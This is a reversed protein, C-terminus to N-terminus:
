RASSFQVSTILTPRSATCGIGVVWAEDAVAIVYVQEAQYTARDVFTPPVDGTLHLVCEVLAQSPPVQAAPIAAARTSETGPPDLVPSAGSDPPSPAPITTPAASPQVQRIVPAPKQVALTHRVQTGLTAKQYTINSDTVLFATTHSAGSAPSTTVEGTPPRSPLAPRATRPAPPGAIPAPSPRSARTTSLRYGFDASVALTGAIATAVVLPLLRPLPASPQRRAHRRRGSHRAQPLAAQPRAAEATMAILIRREIAAPLPPRLSERLTASVTDLQACVRACAPCRAIHASLRRGRRGGPLGARLSALTTLSPHGLRRSM